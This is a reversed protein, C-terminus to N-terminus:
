RVEHRPFPQLSWHPYPCVIDAIAVVLPMLSAEPLDPGQPEFM